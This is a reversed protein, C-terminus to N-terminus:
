KRSCKGYSMFNKLIGRNVDHELCRTERTDDVLYSKRFASTKKRGTSAGSLM